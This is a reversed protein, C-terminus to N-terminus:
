NEPLLTIAVSIRRDFDIGFSAGDVAKGLVRFLM